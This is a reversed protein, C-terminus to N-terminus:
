PDLPSREPMVHIEVYRDQPLPQNENGEPERDYRAAIFDAMFWFDDYLTTGGSTTLEWLGSRSTMPSNIVIEAPNTEIVERTALRDAVKGDSMM